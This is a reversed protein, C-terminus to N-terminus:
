AHIEYGKDKLITRLKKVAQHYHAKVAGETCQMVEATERLSLGEFARLVLAARQRQPLYRLSDRLHSLRERELASSLTDDPSKTFDENLEEATRPRSNLHNLCNNVAIRYLWTYFSAQGKFGKLNTFAAMLTKQTLDKSDEVDQTMRYILAYIRKQYKAALEEVAYDMGDLAAEILKLDENM